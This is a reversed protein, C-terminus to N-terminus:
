CCYVSTEFELFKKDTVSTFVYTAGAPTASRYLRNAPVRTPCASALDRFNPVSEMGHAAIAPNLPSTSEDGESTLAEPNDVDIDNSDNEEEGEDDYAQSEFKGTRRVSAEIEKWDSISGSRDIASTVSLRGPSDTSHMRQPDYVENEDIHHGLADKWDQASMSGDYLDDPAQAMLPIKSSEEM